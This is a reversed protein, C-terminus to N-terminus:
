NQLEEVVNLAYCGLGAYDGRQSQIIERSVKDQILHCNSAETIILDSSSTHMAPFEVEFLTKEVLIRFTEGRSRKEGDRSPVRQFYYM